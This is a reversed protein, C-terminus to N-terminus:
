IDWACRVCAGIGRCTAKSVIPRPDPRARPVGVVAQTTNQWAMDPGVMVTDKDDRGGVQRGSSSWFSSVSRLVLSPQVVVRVLADLRGRVASQVWKFWGGDGVTRQAPSPLSSSQAVSLPPAVSADAVGKENLDVHRADRDLLALWLRLAVRQFRSVQHM